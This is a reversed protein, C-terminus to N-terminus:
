SSAPTRSARPKLLFNGVVKNAQNYDYGDLSAIGRESIGTLRCLMATARAQDSKSADVALLDGATVRRIRLEKVPTNDDIIPVTLKLVTLGSAEVSVLAEDLKMVENVMALIDDAM